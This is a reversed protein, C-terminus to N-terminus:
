NYAGQPVDPSEAAEVQKVLVPLAFVIILVCAVQIGVAVAIPITASLRLKGLDGPAAPLAAKSICRL